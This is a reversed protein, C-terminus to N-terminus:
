PPGGHTDIPLSYLKRDQTVVFLRHGVSDVALGQAWDWGTVWVHPSWSLGGDWSQFVGAGHTAAFLHFPNSPDRDIATVPTALLGNDAVEWTAGGDMSRLIGAGEVGLFLTRGDRPNVVVALVVSVNQWGGHVQDPPPEWRSEADTQSKSLLGGERKGLYIVGPVVPNYAVIRVHTPEAGKGIYEWTQGGDQTEFVSGGGWTGAILQDPNRPNVALSRIKLNDISTHYRSILGDSQSQWTQGGDLSKYVGMSHTGAYLVGASRPDIVLSYVWNEPLGDNVSRWTIGGDDSKFVGGGWSGTSFGSVNAERGGAYITDPASPDVALTYIIKDDILTDPSRTWNEGGDHSIFFGQGRTGAYVFSPRSPDVALAYVMTSSLATLRWHDGNDTTKFVGYETAAYLTTPAGPDMKIDTVTGGYPGSTSATGPRGLPVPIPALGDADGQVAPSGQAGGSAVRVVGWGGTGALLGGAQDPNELLANVGAGSLGLASWSQGGDRTVQIGHAATGAYVARDRSDSIVIADIEDQSLGIPSWTIGADSSRYVGQMTGAYVDTPSRPDIAVSRVEVTSLSSPPAAQVGGDSDLRMVGLNATGVIILAPKDPFAAMATVQAPRRDVVIWSLGHDRSLYVGQGWTGAYLLSRGDGSAVAVASAPFTKGGATVVAAKAGDMTGPTPFPTPEATPTPASRTAKTTQPAPTLSGTPANCGALGIIGACLLGWLPSRV